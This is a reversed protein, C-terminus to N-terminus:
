RAAVMRRTVNIAANLFQRTRTMRDPLAVIADGPLIASVFDQTHWDGPPPLPPLREPAPLPWPSVYFYPQPYYPDGACLGIGISPATEADGEGVTWLTAIDFHHPWCRVPSAAGQPLGSRIDNLMEDAAAFWNALAALEARLQVCRYAAGDGVPHAPIAYPLTAGSPLALGATSALRDLWQGAEEHKHGDLTFQDAVTEGRLLILAMRALCLGARLPEGEAARVEHTVLAGHKGDWGLNTHSDGPMPALNARAFRAAWQMAHHAQLRADGLTKPDVAGVEDWAQTM